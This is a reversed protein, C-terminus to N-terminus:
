SRLTWASRPRASALCAHSARGSRRIRTMDAVSSGSGTQPSEEAATRDDVNRARQMRHRDFIRGAFRDRRVAGPAAACARAIHQAEQRARSLDRRRDAAASAIAAFARRRHEHRQVAREVGGTLIGRKAGRRVAARRALSRRRGVDGLRRQGDGADRRHDVGAQLLDRAVIGFAADIRQRGLSDREVAGILPGAAGRPEPGADDASQPVRAIPQPRMAFGLNMADIQGRRQQRDQRPARVRVDNSHNSRGVRRDSRTPSTTARAARRSRLRCNVGSPLCICRSGSCGRRARTNIAACPDNSPQAAHAHSDSGDCEVPRSGGRGAIQQRDEISPRPHRRM